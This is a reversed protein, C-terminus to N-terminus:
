FATARHYPGTDNAEQCYATHLGGRSRLCVCARCSAKCLPRVSRTEGTSVMGGFATHQLLHSM